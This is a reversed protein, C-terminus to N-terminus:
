AGVRGAFEDHGVHFRSLARDCAAIDFRVMYSLPLDPKTVELGIGTVLWQGDAGVEFASARGCHLATLGPM